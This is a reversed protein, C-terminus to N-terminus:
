RAINYVTVCNRGKAKSIYLAKDSCEILKKSSLADRPYESMGFSATVFCTEIKGDVEMSVPMKSLGERLIELRPLIEENKSRPFFLMFEEGGYRAIYDTDRLNDQFYKALCRLVEDGFLHGYTDNFKKFYDIDLMVLTYSDGSNIHIENEEEMHRLMYARNYIGTLGDKLAMSVIKDDYIFNQVVMSTNEIIINFFDEEFGERPNTNNSNEIVLAGIMGENSKLPIMYYYKIGRRKAFDYELEMNSSSYAIAEQGATFNNISRRTFIELKKLEEPERINSSVVNFDSRDDVLLLTCYDVNFYNCFVSVLKDCSQKIPAKEMSVALIKSLIINKETDVAKERYIKSDADIKKILNDKKKLVMTQILVVASLGAVTYLM